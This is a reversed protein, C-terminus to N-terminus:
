SSGDCEKESWNPLSYHLADNLFQTLERKEENTLIDGLLIYLLSLIGRRARGPVGLLPGVEYRWVNCLGFGMLGEETEGRM